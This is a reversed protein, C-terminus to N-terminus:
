GECFRRGVGRSECRVGRQAGRVLEEATPAEPAERKVSSADATVPAAVPASSAVKPQPLPEQKM